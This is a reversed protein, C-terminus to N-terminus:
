RREFSNTAKRWFMTGREFSQWCNGEADYTMASTPYGFQDRDRLWWERFGYAVDFVQGNPTQVRLTTGDDSVVDSKKQVDAVFRDWPFTKGPCNVRDRGTIQYHGILTQRTPTIGWKKCLYRCLMVLTTYGRATNYATDAGGPQGACEISLTLSNPNIGKRVANALWPVSLDPNQLIGNAWAFDEDKVYRSILGDSGVCYHASANSAPNKFWSDVASRGNPGGPGGSVHIVIAVPKYGDRGKDWCAAGKWQIREEIPDTM